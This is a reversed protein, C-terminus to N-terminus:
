PKQVIYLVNGETPKANNKLTNYLPEFLALRLSNALVFRKGFIRRLIQSPLATILFLDFFNVQEPSITGKKLLIKFKNKKLIEEWKQPSYLSEHKFTKHFQRVYCQALSAFGLKRIIAPFLLLANLDTTPVTFVFLGKPKLVRYAEKIAKQTNPIHEMVSMSIVTSFSNNAFTMQRADERRLKRYKKGSAALRLDNENIDIGMEVQHKFFVGAFEGFGCGIDLVPSKLSNNAPKKGLLKQSVYLYGDSIAQTEIGRWLALAFPAVKLYSRFYENEM